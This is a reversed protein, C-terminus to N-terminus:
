PTGVKYQDAHLTHIAIEKTFVLLFTPLICNYSCIKMHHQTHTSFRVTLPQLLNLTQIEFSEGTMKKDLWITRFQSKDKQDTSCKCFNIWLPQIQKTSCKSCYLYWVSLDMRPRSSSGVSLANLSVDTKCLTVSM